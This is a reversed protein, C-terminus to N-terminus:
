AFLPILKFISTIIVVAFNLCRSLWNDKTENTKSQATDAKTEAKRVKEEATRIADSLKKKLQSVESRLNFVEDTVSTVAELKTKYLKISLQGEGVSIDSHNQLTSYLDVEKMLVKDDTHLDPNAYTVELIDKGDDSPISKVPIVMDGNRIWFTQPKNGTRVRFSISTDVANKRNNRYIRRQYQNVLYDQDLGITIGLQKVFYGEHLNQIKDPDISIFYAHKGFVKNHDKIGVDESKLVRYDVQEKDKTLYFAGRATIRIIIKRTLQADKLLAVAKDGYHKTDHHDHRIRGTIAPVRCMTGDPRTYFVDRGSCNFVTYGEHEERIYEVTPRSFSTAHDIIINAADRLVSGSLDGIITQQLKEERVMLEETTVFEM